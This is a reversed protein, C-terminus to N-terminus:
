TADYNARISDIMEGFRTRANIMRARQGEGPAGGGRPKMDDRLSDLSKFFPENKKKMASEFDKFQHVQVDTLKLDKRKDILLKIPSMEEVDGNSIGDANHNNRSGENPAGRRGG